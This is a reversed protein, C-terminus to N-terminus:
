TCHKEESLGTSIITTDTSIVTINNINSDIGPLLCLTISSQVQSDQLRYNVKEEENSSSFILEFRLVFLFKSAGILLVLTHIAELM